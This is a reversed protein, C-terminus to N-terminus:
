KTRVRGSPQVAQLVRQRQFNQGALEFFAVGDFHISTFFVQGEDGIDGHHFPFYHRLFSFM